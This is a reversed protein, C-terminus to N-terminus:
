RASASEKALKSVAVKARAALLAELRLTAAIRLKSPATEDGAIAYLLRRSPNTLKELALLRDKLRGKSLLISKWCTSPQGSSAPM